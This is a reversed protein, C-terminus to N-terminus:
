SSSSPAGACGVGRSATTPSSPSSWRHSPASSRCSPSTCSSGDAPSASWSTACPSRARTPTSSASRGTGSRASRAPCRTPGRRPAAHRHGAPRLRAGPRRGPASGEGDPRRQRGRGHVVDVGDAICPRTRSAGARPRDDRVPPVPLGAPLRPHRRPRRRHHDVRHRSACRHLKNVVMTGATGAGLVVLRKTSSPNSSM